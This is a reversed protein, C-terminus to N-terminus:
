QTKRRTYRQLLSRALARLGGSREYAILSLYGALALLLWFPRTSLSGSASALLNNMSTKNWRQIEGSALARELWPVTTNHSRESNDGLTATYFTQEKGVTIRASYIGLAPAKIVTKFRGNAVADLQYSRTIGEPYTLTMEATAAPHWENDADVADVLVTLQGSLYSHTVNLRPNQQHSDMWDLLGSLLDDDAVTELMGGPLAAVRGAGYQATALLPDGQDTAVYTQASSRTRTIQYGHLDRWGANPQSIFPTQHLSRPTAAASNWSHQRTELEQRMFRPLEATDNVALVRGGNAAALSQLTTRDADSGIALAILQINAHQLATKLAETNKGDVFGDTVLILFRRQSDSGTLLDIAQALAPALQTGGSPQVQWPQNLASVPDARHELPLLVEVDRDFFVLASEDGARLSKASESVARLAHALRSDDKNAAEMSGSKDVLFLFAAGPLPRSAEAIVPLAHELESHRYGGSGFSRPGGLVILGTGSYEVAHLLNRTVNAEIASAELDDILVMNFRNFFAEDVPIRHPQLSVVQWGDAQLPSRTSSFAQRGIYLLQRGDRNVVVRRFRDTEKGHEDRVIFELSQTGPQANLLLLNLVRREGPQLLLSQKDVVRNDLAIEITGQGGKDSKVALSLPLSQGPSSRSPLNISTIKLVTTQQPGAADLYFLSLDPNNNSVPFSAETPNVSDIGDSSILVATRSDSATHQIASTLAPGISTAGRDLLRHRPMHVHGVIKEFGSDGSAIWPVEVSARDAFRILSLRSGSPLKSGTQLFSQWVTDNHISDISKSDDLLLLLDVPALGLPVSPNWGALMLMLFVATYGAPMISLLRRARLKM